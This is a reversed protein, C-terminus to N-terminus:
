IQNTYLKRPNERGIVSCVLNFGHCGWRKHTLMTGKHSIECVHVTFTKQRM